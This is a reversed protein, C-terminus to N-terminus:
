HIMWTRICFQINWYEQKKNCNKSEYTMNSISDLQALMRCLVHNFTFLMSKSIWMRWNMYKTKNMIKRQFWSFQYSYQTHLYYANNDWSIIRTVARFRSHNCTACIVVIQRINAFLNGFRIRIACECIICIPISTHVITPEISHWWIHVTMLLHFVSIYSVEYAFIEFGLIWIM